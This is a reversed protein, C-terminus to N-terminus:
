RCAVQAFGLVNWTEVRNTDLQRASLSKWMPSVYDVQVPGSTPPVRFYANGTTAQYTRGFCVSGDWLSLRGPMGATIWYPVDPSAAWLLATVVCLTMSMVTAANLLIWPLRSM